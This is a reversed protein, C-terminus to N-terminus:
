GIGVSASIRLERGDVQFPEDFAANIRVALVEGDGPDALEECLIVFEDGSM